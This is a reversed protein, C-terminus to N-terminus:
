YLLLIASLIAASLIAHTTKQLFYYLPPMNLERMFIFNQMAVSLGGFSVVFCIFIAAFKPAYPLASIQAAGTTMEIIGSLPPPAAL